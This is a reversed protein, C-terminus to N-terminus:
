KESLQYDGAKNNVVEQLEKLPLPDIGEYSVTAVPPNLSVTASVGDISNLAREVHAQCHPCSMGTVNYEKTM